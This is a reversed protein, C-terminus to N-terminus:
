GVQLRSLGMTPIFVKKTWLAVGNHEQLQIRGYELIARALTRAVGPRPTVAIQLAKNSDSSIYCFVYACHHTCMSFM